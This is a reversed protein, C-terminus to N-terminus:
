YPAVIKRFCCKFKDNWIGRMGLPDSFQGGSAAKKALIKLELEFFIQAWQPNKKKIRLIPRAVSSLFATLSTTAIRSSTCQTVASTARTLQKKNKQVCQAM